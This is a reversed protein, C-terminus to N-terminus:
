PRETEHVRGRDNSCGQLAQSGTRLNDATGCRYTSDSLMDSVPLSAVASNPTGPASDEPELCSEWPVAPDLLESSSTQGGGGTAVETNGRPRDAVTAVSGVTASCRDLDSSSLGRETELRPRAVVGLGLRM